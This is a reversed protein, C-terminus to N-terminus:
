ISIFNRSSDFPSLFKEDRPDEEFVHKSISLVKDIIRRIRYVTQYFESIKMQELM